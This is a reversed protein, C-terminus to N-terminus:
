GLLPPTVMEVWDEASVQGYEPQNRGWALNTDPQLKRLNKRADDVVKRYLAFQEDAKQSFQLEKLFLHGTAWAVPGMAYEDPVDLHQTATAVYPDRIYQYEITAARNMAPVFRITPIYAGSGTAGGSAGQSVMYYAIPESSATYFRQRLEYGEAPGVRMPRRPRDDGSFAVLLNFSREFSVGPELTLTATNATLAVSTKNTWLYHWLEEQAFRTVGEDLARDVENATWFDAVLEQLRARVEEVATSRLM